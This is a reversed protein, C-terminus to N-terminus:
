WSVFAMGILEVMIKNIKTPSKSNVCMRGTVHEGPAFVEPKRDLEISFKELNSM